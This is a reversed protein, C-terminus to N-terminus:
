EYAFEEAETAIFEYRNNLLNPLYTFPVYGNAFM